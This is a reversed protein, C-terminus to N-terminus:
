KGLVIKKWQQENLGKLMKEMVANVHEKRETAGKAEERIIESKPFKEAAIIAQNDMGRLRALAIYIARAEETTIKLTIQEM